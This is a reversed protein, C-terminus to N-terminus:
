AGSSDDAEETQAWRRRRDPDACHACRHIRRFLVADLVSYIASNAGICLGLTAVVVITLGPRNRLQRFAYRIDNSLAM